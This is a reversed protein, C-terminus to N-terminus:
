LIEKRAAALYAFGDNLGAELPELLQHHSFIGACDPQWVNLKVKFNRQVTRGERCFKVQSFIESCDNCQLWHKIKTNIKAIKNEMEMGSIM